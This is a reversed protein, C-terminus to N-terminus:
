ENPYEVEVQDRIATFWSQFAQQDPRIDKELVQVIHFGFQTEVPQSLVGIELSFAAEEFPAVMMGRGFWGLDGGNEAVSPDLSLEQALAAFDEGGELRALAALAQEEDELLIHRAHVQEAEGYLMFLKEVRLEGRVFDLFEDYDEFGNQQLIEERSGAQAEYQEARQNVEEDTVTIGATNGGEIPLIGEAIQRVLEQDVIRALADARIQDLTAADQEKNPDLDNIDVGYQYIYFARTHRMERDLGAEFLEVGNVVVVVKGTPEGRCGLSLFGLGVFLVCLAVRMRRSMGNRRIARQGPEEQGGSLIRFGDGV